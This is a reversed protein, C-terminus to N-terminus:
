GKKYKKILRALSEALADVSFPKEIFESVGIKLAESYVRDDKYATILLKAPEPQIMTAFRLFRLGDIGPLRLDSIIIDFKEEELARLGQEATGAVKIFCGKTAFVMRLSDRIQEDDDVLLTKVKKLQSFPNM